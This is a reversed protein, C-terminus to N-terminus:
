CHFRKRFNTIGGALTKSSWLIYRSLSGPNIADWNENVRHRALYNKQQDETAGSIFTTSNKSGFEIKKRDQPLCKTPGKCQCLVAIYKKPSKESTPVVDILKM